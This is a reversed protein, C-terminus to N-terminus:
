KDGEDIVLEFMDNNNKNDPLVDIYFEISARPYTVSINDKPMSATVTFSGDDNRKAIIENAVLKQM